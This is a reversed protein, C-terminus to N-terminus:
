EKLAPYNKKGSATLPIEDVAQVRVVKPPVGLQVALYMGIAAADVAGRPAAYISLRGDRDLAAVRVAYRRELDHEVDDLSIRRGFLKAFRSLRGTLYYFGDADVRALDGTRLVGHLVDGTALDAASEAYGMMVNPGRYVLDQEASDDLPALSFEGGPIPIGISGIKEPLRQWPVYSM